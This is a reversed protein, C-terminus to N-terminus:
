FQEFIRSKFKLLIKQTDWLYNSMRYNRCCEKLGRSEELLSEAMPFTSDRLKTARTATNILDKLLYATAELYKQYDLCMKLCWDIESASVEGRALSEVNWQHRKLVSIPYESCDVLNGKAEQMDSERLKIRLMSKPMM